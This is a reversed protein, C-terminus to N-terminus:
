KGVEEPKWDAPPPGAMTACVIQHVVDADGTIRGSIYLTM